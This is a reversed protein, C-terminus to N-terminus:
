GRPYAGRGAEAGKSSAKRVHFGRAGASFGAGLLAQAMPSERVAVGNVTAILMGARVDGEDSREQVRSVFFEALRRAVQGRQPEEEPLFVQINPNERRLYAVLAGDCLVV